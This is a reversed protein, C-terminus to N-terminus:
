ELGRGDVVVSRQLRTTESGANSPLGAKWNFTRQLLHMHPMSTTDMPHNTHSLCIIIVSFYETIWWTIIQLCLWRWNLPIEIDNAMKPTIFKSSPDLMQMVHWALAHYSNISRYSHVSYCVDMLLSQADGSYQKKWHLFNKLTLFLQSSFQSNFNGNWECIENKSQITVLQPCFSM